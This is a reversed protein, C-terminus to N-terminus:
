KETEEEDDVDFIGDDGAYDGGFGEFANEAEEIEDSLMGGQWAMEMAAEAFEKGRAIKGITRAEAQERTNAVIIGNIMPIGTRAASQQLAFATSYGIIEHHPTEGAVVVGLAIVADYEGILALSDCAYPLESAGPVRVLRIKEADVGHKNLTELVDRLLGDVLKKNFRSAAIAFSYGSADIKPM